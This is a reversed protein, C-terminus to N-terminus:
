GATPRRGTSPSSGSRSWPSTRRWRPRTTGGRRSRGRRTVGVLRGNSAVEFRKPARVTIAMPTKDAPVNSIPLWTMTGVPEGLAVIGDKTQGWGEIADDPDTFIRPVGHYRVVVELSTGAAEEPAARHPAPARDQELRRGDRGGHRRRGDVRGPGARRQRHRPRRVEIRAKAEIEGGGANWDIRVHYDTMDIATDGYGPLLPDVYPEAAQAGGTPLLLAPRSPQSPGLPVDCGHLMEALEGQALPRRPRAPVEARRWPEGESAM